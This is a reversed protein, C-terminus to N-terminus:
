TKAVAVKGRVELLFRPSEPLFFYMLAGILSPMASLAIFLRWSHFTLKGSYLSIKGRPIIAWAFAGCLLRGFMWFISQVSLYPGRYKNRIFETTYPFIVPLSGGVSYVTAFMIFLVSCDLPSNM